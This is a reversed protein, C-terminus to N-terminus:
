HDPWAPWGGEGADDDGPGDQSEWSMAEEPQSGAPLLGARWEASQLGPYLNLQRMAPIPAPLPARRDVTHQQLRVEKIVHREVPPTLPLRWARVLPTLGVAMLAVGGPVALILALLRLTDAGILDLARVMGFVAALALLIVGGLTLDRKM